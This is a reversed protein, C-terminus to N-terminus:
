LKHGDMVFGAMNHEYILTVTWGLGSCIALIHM